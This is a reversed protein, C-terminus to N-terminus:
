RGSSCPSLRVRVMCPLELCVFGAAVRQFTVFCRFFETKSLSPGLAGIFSKVRLAWLFSFDFFLLCCLLFNAAKVVLLVTTVIAALLRL